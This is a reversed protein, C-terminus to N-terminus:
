RNRGGNNFVARIPIVLSVEAKTPGFYHLTGLDSPDRVLISWDPTPIYHRYPISAYGATVSLELNMWKGIPFAYGYTVGLSMFESRFLM